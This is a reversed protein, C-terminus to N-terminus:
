GKGGTAYIEIQEQVKNAIEEGFQQTLIEKAKEKEIIGRNVGVMLAIKMDILFLEDSGLCYANRLLALGSHDVNPEIVTQYIAFWGM